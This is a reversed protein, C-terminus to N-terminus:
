ALINSLSTRAQELAKLSSAVPIIFAPKLNKADDLTLNDDDLELGVKDYFSEKSLKTAQEKNLRAVVVQKVGAKLALKIRDVLGDYGYNSIGELKVLVTVDSDKSGDIAAEIKGLLSADDDSGSIKESHSPWLQDNMMLYDAGSRDLEVAANWM